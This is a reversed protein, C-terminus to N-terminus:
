PTENQLFRWCQSKKLMEISGTLPTYLTVCISRHSRARHSQSVSLLAHSICDQMVYWPMTVYPKSPLFFPSLSIALNNGLKVGFHGTFNWAPFQGVRSLSLVTLSDQSGRCLCALAESRQRSHSTTGCVELKGSPCLICESRILTTQRRLLEEAVEALLM